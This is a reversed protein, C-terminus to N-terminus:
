VKAHSPHGRLIATGSTFITDGTLVKTSFVNVSLYLATKKLGMFVSYRWFTTRQGTFTRCLIPLLWFRSGERRTLSYVLGLYLCFFHCCWGDDWLFYFVCAVRLLLSVTDCTSRHSGCSVSIDSLDM